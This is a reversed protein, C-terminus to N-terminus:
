IPARINYDGAQDINRDIRRKFLMILTLLFLSMVMMILIMAWFPLIPLDALNMGYISSILVIPITFSSFASILFEYLTKASEKKLKQVRARDKETREERQEEIKIKRREELYDNELLALTDELEERLEKRQSPIGFVQRMTLFFESFESQGGCDDSSMSITFRAVLTALERLQRRSTALEELNTREIELKMNEAQLSAMTSLEELVAREAHAHLGLVLYVGQFKNYWNLVNNRDADETAWTICAIGERSIGIYRNMRPILVRDLLGKKDDNFETLPPRNKQGLARRLHFLYTHLTKNNPKRDLVVTSHHYARSGTGVKPLIKNAKEDSLLLLWNAITNLSVLKDGYIAKVLKKGISEYHAEIRKDPTPVDAGPPFQSSQQYQSQQQQPQPSYSPPPISTYDKSPKFVAEPAPKPPTTPDTARKFNWGNAVNRVKHRFKSVYLWTRFEELLFQDSSGKACSEPHHHHYDSASTTKGSKDKECHQHLCNTLWDINFVLIGVGLPLVILHVSEFKVKKYIDKAEGANNEVTWLKPEPFIIDKVKDSMKLRRCRWTSKSDSPQGHQIGLNNKFQRSLEEIERPLENLQTWVSLQTVGDTDLIRRDLLGQLWFSTPSRHNSFQFPIIMASRAVTCVIDEELTMESAMTPLPMHMMNRHFFSSSLGSPDDDEEEYDSMTDDYQMPTTPLIHQQQQQQQQPQQHQQFMDFSLSPRRRRRPLSDYKKPVM